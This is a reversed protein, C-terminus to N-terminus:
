VHAVGSLATFPAGNISYEGGLISLATQGSIGSVTVTNSAYQTSLEANSLSFFSFGDPITDAPM